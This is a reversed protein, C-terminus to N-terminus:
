QIRQVSSLVPWGGISYKLWIFIGMRGDINKTFAALDASGGLLSPVEAAFSNFIKASAKRTAVTGDDPLFEPIVEDWGNEDEKTFNISKQSNLVGFNM